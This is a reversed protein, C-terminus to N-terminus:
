ASSPFVPVSARKSRPHCPGVAVNTGHPTISCTETSVSPIYGPSMRHRRQGQGLCPLLVMVGSRWVGAIVGGAPYVVLVWPGPQATCMAFGHRVQRGPPALLAGRHQPIGGAHQGSPALLATPIHPGRTDHALRGVLWVGRLAAVIRPTHPGHPGGIPWAFVSSHGMSFSHAGRCFPHKSM